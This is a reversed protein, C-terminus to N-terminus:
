EFWRKRRPEEGRHIVDREAKLADAAPRLDIPDRGPHRVTTLNLGNAKAIAEATTESSERLAEFAQKDTAPLKDM